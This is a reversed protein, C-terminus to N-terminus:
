TQIAWVVLSDRRFQHIWRERNGNWLEEQTILRRWTRRILRPLIVPLTFDLWVITDARAWAIDRVQGYNGDAVWADGGLARAIRERFVDTSAPTWAPEWHLADFEVHPLGFRAALLRALTTKGSGTSGVVIIRRGPAPWNTQM